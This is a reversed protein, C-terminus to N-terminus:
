GAAAALLPLEVVIRAGGEPRREARITGRHGDVISRAIALGLGVGDGGRTRDGRYFREFIREEDGDAIGPGRDDVTLTARGDRAVLSLDLDGAGHRLANDVLIWVLRTLSERDGDLIAKGDAAFAIARGRRGAKRAVDGVIPELDVVETAPRGGADARALTLLGDVLRSLRESEAAVDDLAAARDDPAADPRERLFEANTRITTLPTRLEHSADAVFRRQAALSDELQARTAALRDLMGNFSATLTGVEDRTAVAPLRRGLDGTRGIEDATGTLTRLPRLARGIVLWSVVVVAVITVITAFWLFFRLGALQGATFAMTRGAVVIGRETGRTWSRAHIRLELDGGPRITAASTGTDLAEVVVAAPMRPITGGLRATSYIPTGDEDYVAVFPEETTALDLLVLPRASGLGESGLEEVAVATDAALRALLRDQDDLVGRGLLSTLLVAFLAMGATAVGAAYLVLRRRIRV